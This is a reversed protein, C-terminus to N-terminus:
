EVRMIFALAYYSPINNHGEGGGTSNITHTHNWDNYDTRDESYDDGYYTRITGVIHPTDDWGGQERGAIASHQHSGSNWIIHDHNPLDDETLTVTASGGTEGIDYTDGAGVMFRDVMNPTNIGNYESGDCLKWNNHTIGNIDQPSKNNMTGSWMAIGGIPTTGSGIIKNSSINGMVISRRSAYSGAILTTRSPNLKMSPILGVGMDGNSTLIMKDKDEINTDNDSDTTLILSGNYDYDTDINQCIIGSTISNNNSPSMINITGLNSDNQTAANISTNVLRIKPDDSMIDIMFSPDVTGLGFRTDGIDKLNEVWLKERGLINNSVDIFGNIYTPKLINSNVSLDLWNKSIDTM